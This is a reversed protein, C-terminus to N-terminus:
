RGFVLFGRIREITRAGMGNVRELDEPELYPGDARGEIIADAMVEGVGPLEM